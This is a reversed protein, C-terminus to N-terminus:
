RKDDDELMRYKPAEVRDRRRRHFYHVIIGALVACLAGTFLLYAWGGAIM